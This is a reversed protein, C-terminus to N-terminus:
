SGAPGDRGDERARWSAALASGPFWAGHVELVEALYADLTGADLRRGIEDVTALITWLNHRILEDGGPFETM